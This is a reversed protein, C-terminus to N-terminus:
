STVIAELVKHQNNELFPFAYIGSGVEVAWPDEQRKTWAFKGTRFDNAAAPATKMVGLATPPLLLIRNQNLFRTVTRTASGQAATRTTFKANYRIVEEIGIISLAGAVM